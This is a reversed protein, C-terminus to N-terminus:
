DEPTEATRRFCLVRVGEPPEITGHVMEVIPLNDALDAAPGGLKEALIYASDDPLTAGDFAAKVVPDGILGCRTKFNEAGIPVGHFNLPDGGLTHFGSAHVSGDPLAELLVSATGDYIDHQFAEADARESVESLLPRGTTGAEALTELPASKILTWGDAGTACLFVILDSTTARGYQLADGMEQDFHPPSCAELGLEHLAGTISSCVRGIEDTAFWTTNKWFGV